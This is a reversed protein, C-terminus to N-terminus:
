FTEAAINGGKRRGHLESLISSMVTVDFGIEPTLSQVSANIDLMNIM